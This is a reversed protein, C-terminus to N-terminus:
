RSALRTPAKVWAAVQDGSGVRVFCNGKAVRYATCMAIADPRAFGGVSLRYFSAGGQAVPMGSPTHGALVPYRRTASMWGDRAVAANPFAGLQVYFNGKAPARVPEVAAMIAPRPAAVAAKVPDRRPAAAPIAQVIPRREAFVVRVPASAAATPEADAVAAVPAVPEPMAAVETVPDPKGPMFSDVPAEAVVPPAAVAPQLAVTLPQGRDEVATVGLLSAVQDSASTPHAFKAWAIIRADVEGPAVDLAAVSKAEPWRGALALSLALNQRTKADAGPERAANMLVDVAMAPDGALALALGRDSVPIISAHDDLTKHAAAWDGTATQALALSLASHGDASALALSDAFADRASAFRGARLYADGLLTRYSPDRPSLRVAMEASVIAIAVKNAHLAKRANRAADAAQRMARSEAHSGAIAIGSMQTVTGALAAGLVLASLGFNLRLKEGLM